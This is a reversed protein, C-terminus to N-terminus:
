KRNLFSSKLWNMAFKLLETEDNKIKDLEDPKIYINNDQEFIYGRFADLDYCAMHFTRKEALGLSESMVTKKLSILELMMDNMENYVDTEQTKIWDGIIYEKGNEFGKCHAEKILAFRETIKGTSRNRSALRILPYTRCSSPRDEYVACGDKTVFPCKLEDEYQPKLSIIPFGTEFGISEVTYKELFEGSNMNLRNKLRLVDYPTLFQNINKCCENFCPMDENCSFRFRGDLSVATINENEMIYLGM